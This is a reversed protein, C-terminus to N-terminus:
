LRMGPHSSPRGELPSSTGPGVRGRRPGPFPGPRPGKSNCRNEARYVSELAMGHPKKLGRTVANSSGHEEAGTRGIVPTASLGLRSRHHVYTGIPCFSQHLSLKPKGPPIPVHIRLCGALHYGGTVTWYCSRCPQV